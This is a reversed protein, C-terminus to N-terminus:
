EIGSSSLFAAELESNVSKKNKGTKCRMRGIASGVLVYFNTGRDVM